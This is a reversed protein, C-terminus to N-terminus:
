IYNDNDLEKNNLPIEWVTDECAYSQSLIGCYPCWYLGTNSGFGKMEMNEGCKCKRGVKRM